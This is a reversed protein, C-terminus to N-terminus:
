EPEGTSALHDILRDVFTSQATVILGRAEDLRMWRVRDIEPFTQTRGSRPPWLMEFTGPAITAPDLDHRVAWGQVIKGGSQTVEGLDIFRTTPAPLGLEETFERRATELPDEGPEPLGKPITWAGADRRAWFPGGMHALLVEIWGVEGEEFVRWPLLGFSRVTM